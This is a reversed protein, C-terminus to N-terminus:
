VFDVSFDVKGKGEQPKADDGSYDPLGGFEGVLSDRHQELEEEGIAQVSVPVDQLDESRKQATVVITPVGGTRKPKAGAPSQDQAAVPSAMAIAIASISAGTVFQKM